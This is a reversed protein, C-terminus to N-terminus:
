AAGQGTPNVAGEAASQGCRFHQGGQRDRGYGGQHQAVLAVGAVVGAVVHIQSQGAAHNCRSHGDVGHEVAM